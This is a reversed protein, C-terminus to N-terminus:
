SEVQTVTFQSILTQDTADDPPNPAVELQATVIYTAGSHGNLKFTKPIFHCEYETPVSRDFILDALFSDAGDNTQRYFARLYDYKQADLTWKVTIKATAGIYDARYRAAGGELQVALTSEGDEVSYSEKDPPIALKLM